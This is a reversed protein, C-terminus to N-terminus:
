FISVLNCMMRIEDAQTSSDIIEVFGLKMYLRLAPTNSKNVGLFLQSLHLAEKSFRMISTIVEFGVGKGRYASEGILIGIWAYSNELIPELKVNGVHNGNSKDFIGFLISNSSNNKETIYSKLEEITFNQRVGDIFKNQSVDIMWSIYNSLNDINPVLSRLYYNESEVKGHM